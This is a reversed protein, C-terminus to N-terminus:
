TCNSVHLITENADQINQLEVEKAVMKQQLDHKISPISTMWCNLTSLKGARWKKHQQDQLKIQMEMQLSM